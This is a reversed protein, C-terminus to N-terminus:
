IIRNSKFFNEIFITICVNLSVLFYIKIEEIVFKSLNLRSLFEVYEKYYAKNQSPISYIIKFNITIYFCL